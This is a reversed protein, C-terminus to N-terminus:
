SAQIATKQRKKLTWSSCVISIEFLLILPFIILIDSIIDPPTLSVGLVVLLFYSVKRAKRLLTPNLIGLKTLFMIIVPMDFIISIPIVINFLLSFFQAMGYTETAGISQNINTMFQLVMPFVVFYSFMCGILFLLFSLPVYLLTEKAEQKSLAPTVFAWIQHLLVPLTLVISVVLACKFYILFGETFGFVNWEILAATPQIKIYDLVTPSLVFGLITTLLFTVSVIILRKRLESLHEIVTFEEKNIM